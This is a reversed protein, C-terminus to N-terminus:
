ECRCDVGCGRHNITNCQCGSSGVDSSTSNAMRAASQFIDVIQMHILMQDDYTTAALVRRKFEDVVFAVQEPTFEVTVSYSEADIIATEVRRIIQVILEVDQYSDARVVVDKMCAAICDALSKTFSVSITENVPPSVAGEMSQKRKSISPDHRRADRADSRNAQRGFVEQLVVDRRNRDGLDDLITKVINFIDSGNAAMQVINQVDDDFNCDDIHLVGLHMPNGGRDILHYTIKSDPIKRIM